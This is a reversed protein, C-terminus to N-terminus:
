PKPKWERALRQAEAIQDPTMLAFLENRNHVARAVGQAAALNYWMYALTFDQPVGGLGNDYLAGLAFQGIAYGQDAARRYWKAAEVYDRAVGEGKEYMLGAAFEAAAQGKQALPMWRRLAGQEVASNWLHMAEDYDGRDFAATADEFAGATAPGALMVAIAIIALVRTLM